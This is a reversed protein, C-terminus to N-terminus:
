PTAGGRKSQEALADLLALRLYSLQNFTREETDVVYTPPWEGKQSAVSIAHVSNMYETYAVKYQHRLERLEKTAM